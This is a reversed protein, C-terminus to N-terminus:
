KTCVAVCDCEGLHKRAIREAVGRNFDGVAKVLLRWSPDGFKETKYNKKLWESMTARLCKYPDSHHTEKIADLSGVRIHLATGIDEWLAKCDKLAELVDYLEDTDIPLMTHIRM